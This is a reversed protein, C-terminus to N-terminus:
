ICQLSIALKNLWIFFLFHELFLKLDLTGKPISTLFLMLFNPNSQEVAQLNL